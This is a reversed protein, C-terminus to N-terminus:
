SRNLLTLVIQQWEEDPTTVPFPQRAQGYWYRCNVAEGQKRHLYAHVWAAEAANGHERESQAIEHSREWNGKADWWLAALLPSLGEPPAHDALSIRFHELTM